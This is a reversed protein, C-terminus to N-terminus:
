FLALQPLKSPMAAIVQLDKRINKSRDCIWLKETRKINDKTRQGRGNAASM